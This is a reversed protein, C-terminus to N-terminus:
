LLRELYARVRLIGAFGDDIMVSLPARGQFSANEQRLWTAPADNGGFISELALSITALHSIRARQDSGLHASGSKWRYFTRAAVGLLTQTERDRLEWSRAVDLAVHLRESDTLPAALREALAM